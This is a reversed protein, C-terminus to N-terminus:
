CGRANVPGFGLRHATPNTPAAIDRATEAAEDTPRAPDSQAFRHLDIRPRRPQFTAFLNACTLHPPPLGLPIEGRRELTQRTHDALEDLELLHQHVSEAEDWITLTGPPLHDGLSARTLFPTWFVLNQPLTGAQILAVDRAFGDILRDESM